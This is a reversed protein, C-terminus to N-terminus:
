KRFARFRGGGLTEPMAIDVCPQTQKLEAPLEESMIFIKM